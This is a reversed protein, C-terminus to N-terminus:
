FAECKSKFCAAERKIERAKRVVFGPKALHEALQQIAIETRELIDVRMEGSEKIGAVTEFGLRLQLRGQVVALNDKHIAIDTRIERVLGSAHGRLLARNKQFPDLM